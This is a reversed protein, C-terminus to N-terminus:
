TELGRTHLSSDMAQRQFSDSQLCGVHFDLVLPRQRAWPNSLLTFSYMAKKRIWSKQPAGVSILFRHEQSTDKLPIEKTRAETCVSGLPNVQSGSQLLRLDSGALAFVKLAQPGWGPSQLCQSMAVEEWLM